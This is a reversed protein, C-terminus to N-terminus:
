GEMVTRVGSEGMRTHFPCVGVGCRACIRCRSFVQLILARTPVPELSGILRLCWCVCSGVHSGSPGFFRAGSAPPTVGAPICPLSPCQSEGQGQWAAPVLVGGALADRPRCRHRPSGPPEPVRKPGRVPRSRAPGEKWPDCTACGRSKPDPKSQRSKWRSRSCSSASVPQRSSLLSAHRRGTFSRVARSPPGRRFLCDCPRRPGGNM